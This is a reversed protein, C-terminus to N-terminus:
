VRNLNGTKKLWNIKHILHLMLCLLVVQIRFDMNRKLLKKNYFEKKLRVKQVVM